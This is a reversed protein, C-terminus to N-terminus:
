VRKQSFSSMRKSNIAIDSYSGQPLSPPVNEFGASITESQSDDVVESGMGRDLSYFPLMASWEETHRWYQLSCTLVIPWEKLRM